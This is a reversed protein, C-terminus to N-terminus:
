PLPPTTPSPSFRTGRTSSSRDPSNFDVGEESTRTASDNQEHFIGHCNTSSVAGFAMEQRFWDVSKKKSWRSPLEKREWLDDVGGCTLLYSQNREAGCKAPTTGRNLAKSIYRGFWEGIGDDFPKVLKMGDKPPRNGTVKQHYRGWIGRLETNKAGTIYELPCEAPFQILLHAHLCGVRDGKIECELTGIARAGCKNLFNDQFPKWLKAKFVTFDAVTLDSPLLATIPRRGQENCDAVFAKIKFLNDACKIIYNENAPDNYYESYNSTYADRDSGESEKRNPYAKALTERM